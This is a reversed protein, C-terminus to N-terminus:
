IKRYSFRDKINQHFFTGHSGANLLSQYVSQPVSSYQYVENGKFEIELISTYPDYGVSRLDSSSVYIRNM